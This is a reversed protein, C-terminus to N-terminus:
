NTPKRPRGIPMPSLPRRLSQELQLLFGKSGSPQGTRTNQRIAEVLGRDEKQELYASWDKVSEILYGDNALVPDVIGQVHSRASSWRYGNAKRAISARVPNNEVYRMGAYLHREDLVCSFFRGQWLHGTGGRRRNIYQAYRMQLTNFTRAMSDSEAPVAIFHVHNGMLCYAWIKLFYKRSYITLWEIYQLYEGEEEFVNQHYNGRQTIHHPLDIAVARSIRPM